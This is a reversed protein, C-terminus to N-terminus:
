QRYIWELGPYEALASPLLYDGRFLPLDLRTWRPAFAPDHAQILEALLTTCYRHPLERSELLFPQGTQSRLDAAIRARLPEALFIPRAIAFRRALAPQLFDELPSLLVQDPHRPDDDTTAHVILIRPTTAVVMGVHSYDGGSAERILVSDMATGLRFLWDGVELVPLGSPDFPPQATSLPRQALVGLLLVVWALLRLLASRGPTM